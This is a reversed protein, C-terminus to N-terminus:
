STERSISLLGFDLLEKVSIPRNDFTSNHSSEAEDFKLTGLIRVINDLLKVSSLEHAAADDNFKSTIVLATIVTTTFGRRANPPRGWTITNDNGTEGPVGAPLVELVKTTISSALDGKGVNVVRTASYQFVGSL